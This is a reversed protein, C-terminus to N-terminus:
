DSPTQNPSYNAILDYLEEVQGELRKEREDLDCLAAATVEENDVIIDYVAKAGPLQENTSNESLETTISGSVDANEGSKNAASKDLVWKDDKYKFTGTVENYQNLRIWTYDTAPPEVLDKWIKM